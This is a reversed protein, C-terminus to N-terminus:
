TETYEDFADISGSYGDGPRMQAFIMEGRWIGADTLRHMELTSFLWDGAEALRKASM